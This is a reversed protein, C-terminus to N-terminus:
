VGARSSEEMTLKEGVPSWTPAMLEVESHSAKTRSTKWTMGSQKWKFAGCSGAVTWVCPFGSVRLHMPCGICEWTEQPCNMWPYTRCSKCPGSQSVNIISSKFEYKQFVVFTHIYIERVGGLLSWQWLDADVMFAAGFHSCIWENLECHLWSLLRSAPSDSQNAWLQPKYPRHWKEVTMVSHLWDVEAWWNDSKKGGKSKIFHQAISEMVSSSVSIPTIVWPVNFWTQELRTLTSLWYICDYLILFMSSGIM